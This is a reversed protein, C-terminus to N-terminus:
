QQDLQLSVSCWSLDQTWLQRGEESGVSRGFLSELEEFATTNAARVFRVDSVFPDTSPENSRLTKLLSVKITPPLADWRRALIRLSGDRRVDDDIPGDVPIRQQITRRLDDLIERVAEQDDEGINEREPLSLWRDSLGCGPTAVIARDDTNPPLSEPIEALFAATARNDAAKVKALVPRYYLSPTRTPSAGTGGRARAVRCM